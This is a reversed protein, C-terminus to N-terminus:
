LVEPASYAAAIAPDAQAATELLRSAPASLRHGRIQRVADEATACKYLTHRPSELDVVDAGGLAAAAPPRCVDCPEADDPLDAARHPVGTNCASEHRHYVVSQGIIHILYGGNPLSKNPESCYLEFEVWRPRRPTETRVRALLTGEFQVPKLGDRVELM